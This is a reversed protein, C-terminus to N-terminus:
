GSRGFRPVLRRAALLRWANGAQQRVEADRWWTLAAYAMVMIGGCMLMAFLPRVGAMALASQAAKGALAAVVSLAFIPLLLRAYDAMRAEVIRNVLAASIFFDVIAIVASLASVGVIGGWRVAPYLLAAMTLFRWLAIYLLWQPKGGAQFMPGMNVAVSRLLGYIGLLQIPV